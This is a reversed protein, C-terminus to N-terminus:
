LRIFKRPSSRNDWRTEYALSRSNLEWGRKWKYSFLTVSYDRRPPSLTCNVLITALPQNLPYRLSLNALSRNLSDIRSIYRSEERNKCFYRYGLNPSHNEYSWEKLEIRGTGVILNQYSKQLDYSELELLTKLLALHCFFFFLSFSISVQLLNNLVSNSAFDFHLTIGGATTFNCTTFRRASCSNVISM